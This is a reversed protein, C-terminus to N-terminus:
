IGSSIMWHKESTRLVFGLHTTKSVIIQGAQGRVVEEV